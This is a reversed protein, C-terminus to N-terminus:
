IAATIDKTYSNSAHIDADGMWCSIGNQELLRRVSKARQIDETKYSIFVDAM